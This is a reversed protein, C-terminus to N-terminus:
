LGVSRLFTLSPAFFYEGGQMRVFDAFAFPKPLAGVTWGDQYMHMKDAGNLSQGIVPDIGTVPRGNGQKMNGVFAPNDAWSKQTFEFQAEISAMYAMFLLGVDKTPEHGDDAFDSGDASPPREAGYTIGRRAMIPNREASDDPLGLERVIDGRPNTKRIHAHFPCKLGDPDGSYNFNNPPPKAQANGSPLVLPTGDEFRGIVMAGARERTADPLGLATALAKEAAKFGRVNQELKRFVFYSGASLPTRGNPDPVVFQSPKFVPSWQDGGVNALETAIDEALFLPQSRGDVYGFHEVGLPGVAADFTKTQQFGREVVLITVGSGNLWDEAEELDRTVADEDADAVLFMADPVPQGTKWGTPNWASRDPDNLEGARAPMGAAFAAGPPMAAHAGLAEFGHASLFLCRVTGGDLHPPMRRNRRLQDLASPCHQALSRLIAAVDAAKMGSFSM